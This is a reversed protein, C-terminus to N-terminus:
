SSIVLVAANTKQRNTLTLNMQMKRKEPTAADCM